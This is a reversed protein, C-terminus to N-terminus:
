WVCWMLPKLISVARKAERTEEVSGSSCALNQSSSTGMSIRAECTRELRGHGEVGNWSRGRWEMVKRGHGQRGKAVKRAVGGEVCHHSQRYAM